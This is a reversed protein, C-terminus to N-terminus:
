LISLALFNKKVKLPNYPTFILIENNDIILNLAHLCKEYAYQLKHRKYDGKMNNSKLSSGSRMM